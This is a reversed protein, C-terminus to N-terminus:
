SQPNQINRPPLITSLIPKDPTMSYKLIDALLEADLIQRFPFLKDLIEISTELEELDVFGSVIIGIIRASTQTLRIKRVDKEGNGLRAYLYPCRCCLIISHVKFQQSTSTEDVEIIADYEKESKLLKSFDNSFDDFHKKSSVLRRKYNRVELKLAALEEELERVKRKEFILDRESERAKCQKQKLAERAKIEAKKKLKM